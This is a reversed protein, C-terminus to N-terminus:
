VFRTDYRTLAAQARPRVHADSLLRHLLVQERDHHIRLSFAFGAPLVLQLAVHDHIAERDKAMDDDYVVRAYAGPIRRSLVDAMREY